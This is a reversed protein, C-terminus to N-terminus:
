TKLDDRPLDESRRNCTKLDERPLDEVFCINECGDLFVFLFSTVHM